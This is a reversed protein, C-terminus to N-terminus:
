CILRCIQKCHFVSIINKTAYEVLLVSYVNKLVKRFQPPSKESKKDSSGELDRLQAEVRITGKVRLM